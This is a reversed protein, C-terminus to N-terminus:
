WKEKLDRETYEPLNDDELGQMAQELSFHSWENNDQQIDEESQSEILSNLFTLVEAQKDESLIDIKEQIIQKISMFKNKRIGGNYIILSAIVWFILVNTWYIM